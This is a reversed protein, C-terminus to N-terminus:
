STSGVTAPMWDGGDATHPHYGLERGQAAHPECLGRYGNLTELYAVARRPCGHSEHFSCFGALAESRLRERVGAIRHLNRMGSM